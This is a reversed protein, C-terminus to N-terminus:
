GYTMRQHSDDFKIHTADLLKGHLDNDTNREKIIGHFHVNREM